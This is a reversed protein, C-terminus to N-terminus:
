VPVVDAPKRATFVMQHCHWPDLRELPRQMFNPFPYLGFGCGEINKFGALGLFERLTRYSFVVLHRHTPNDGEVMGQFDKMNMSVATNNLHNSDPHPGTSPMRGALLLAITFYTSINPTLIVLKGGPKLIRNAEAIFHCGNLLHELVSLELVCDFQRDDFPPRQNLDGRRVNLGREQAKEVLDSSLEIGHYQAPTIPILKSLAYFNGGNDAGCDLITWGSGFGSVVEQRALAYAEGM